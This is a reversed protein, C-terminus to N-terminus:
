DCEPDIASYERAVVATRAVIFDVVFQYFFSAFILNFIIEHLKQVHQAFKVIRHFSANSHPSVHRVCFSYIVFSLQSFRPANQEKPSSRIVTLLGM